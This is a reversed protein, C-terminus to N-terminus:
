YANWLFLSFSRVKYMIEEYQQLRMGPQDKRLQPLEREKYAAFAAKYRIHMIINDALTIRSM